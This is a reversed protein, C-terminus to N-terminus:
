LPTMHSVLGSKFGSLIDNFGLRNPSASAKSQEREAWSIFTIGDSAFQATARTAMERVANV